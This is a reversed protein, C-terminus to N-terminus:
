PRTKSKLEDFSQLILGRNDPDNLPELDEGQLGAQRLADLDCDLVAISTLRDTNALLELAKRKQQQGLWNQDCLKYFGIDFRKGIAIQLRTEVMKAESEPLELGFMEVGLHEKSVFDNWGENHWLDTDERVFFNHSPTSEDPVWINMSGRISGGPRITKDIYSELTEGKGLRMGSDYIDEDTSVRFVFGLGSFYESVENLFRGHFGRQGTATGVYIIRPPNGPFVHIYVGKKKLESPIPSRDHTSARSFYWGYSKLRIWKREV